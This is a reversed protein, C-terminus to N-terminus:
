QQSLDLEVFEPGDRHKRAQVRAAVLLGRRSSFSGGLGGVVGVVGVREREVNPTPTVYLVGSYGFLGQKVGVEYLPYRGLEGLPVGNITVTMETAPAPGVVNRGDARVRRRVRGCECVIDDGGVAFWHTDIDCRPTQAEITM